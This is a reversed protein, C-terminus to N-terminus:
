KKPWALFYSARGFPSHFSQVELASRLDLHIGAQTPIVLLSFVLLPLTLLSRVLLHLALFSLALM